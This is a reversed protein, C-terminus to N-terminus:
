RPIHQRARELMAGFTHPSKGAVNEMELKQAIHRYDGNEIRYGRANCYQCLACDHLSLWRYTGHAPMTELWSILDEVTPLKPKAWKPDYLM